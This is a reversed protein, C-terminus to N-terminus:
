FLINLDEHLKDAESQQQSSLTLAELVMDPQIKEVPQMMLLTYKGSTNMM